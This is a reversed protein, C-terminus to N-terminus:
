VSCQGATSGFGANPAGAFDAANDLCVLAEDSQGTNDQVMKPAAGRNGNVELDGDLLRNSQVVLEEDVNNRKVEVDGRLSLNGACETIPDNSGVLVDREGDKVELEDRITMGCVNVVPPTEAVTRTERLEVDRLATSNFLFVQATGTTVIDSGAISGEHIFISQAGSGTVIGAIITGQNAEFYGRSRVSVRGAVTSDSLICVGDAPVTVNDVTIGDFSGNCEFNV